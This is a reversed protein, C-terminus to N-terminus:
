SPLIDTKLLKNERKLEEVISDLVGNVFTGSKPTSYYKAADIYENLTVSVPITPFNLLEAVAVQMIVIDMNALRESEWNKIHKEILARYEDGRLLSQRFLKLVFEYDSENNFMPLLENRSGQNQEFRKITKIVFSEIIDVDENWYISKEELYEEVFANNCILRRFVLRWFERDVEYSDEKNAIYEAYIDSKLILDLIKKVFDRDETWFIGHEKNYKLLSENVSMQKSLRNNLLRTDPNMEEASPRFKSKRTDIMREYLQTVEVMLLLLYHYLDYSRRLSLMLENEAVRLDGNDTQYFAFVIQLVKIRILIRNIM